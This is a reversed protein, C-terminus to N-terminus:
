RVKGVTEVSHSLGPTFSATTATYYSALVLLKVNSCLTPKVSLDRPSHSSSLIVSIFIEFPRPYEETLQLHVVKIFIYVFCLSSHGWTKDAWTNALLPSHAKELIWCSCWAVVDESGNFPATVSRHALPTPYLHTCLPWEMKGSSTWAEPLTAPWVPQASIM